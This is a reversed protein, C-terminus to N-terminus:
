RSGIAAQRKAALHRELARIDADTAWGRGDQVAERLDTLHAAMAAAEFLPELPFGGAEAEYGSRWARALLGRVKGIIPRLRTPPAPALVLLVYTRALDLRRDGLRANPFDVLGTIRGGEVLVNLPHYDFHCFADQRLEKELAARLQADHVPALRRSPEFPALGLPQLSHLRAQLRGFARGLQWTRWPQAQVAAAMTRGPLWEQVIFPTAEFEGEAEIAPAPLRALHAARLANAENAAVERVHEPDKSTRHLRLAHERGDATRFRWIYTDWGGTVPTFEGAAQWGITALVDGPDPTEPM